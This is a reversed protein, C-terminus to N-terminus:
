TRLLTLVLQSLHTKHVDQVFESLGRVGVETVPPGCYGTM